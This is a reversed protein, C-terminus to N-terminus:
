RLLALVHESQRNAQTLMSMGAQQLIQSKAYQVMEDAMDTDRDRSESAQTNEANIANGSIAYELRNQVAGYRSRASSLYSLAGDIRELAKSAYKHASITISNIGMALTGVNLRELEIGQGANAGIQLWNDYVPETQSDIGYFMDMKAPGQINDITHEGMKKYSIKVANGSLSAKLYANNDPDDFATQLAEVFAEATDYRGPLVSYEYTQGDVDITFTNKGNEIFIGNSIDKTGTLYAPILDGETKYFITFLSNGTLGDIKYKGVELNINKNLYFFLSNKDDSGVVGTEFTGVGARISGPPLLPDNLKTLAQDLKKQLMKVLDGSGYNGPDLQLKLPIVKETGNADTYTINMGLDDNAGKQIRSTNNRIDQRGAIYVDGGAQGGKLYSTKEKINRNVTGKMVYEYFTGNMNTISTESGLQKATFRVQGSTVSVDLGYDGLDKLKNQLATQLKKIDYTGEDLTINVDETGQVTKYTFALNNNGSDITFSSPFPQRPPRYTYHSYKGGRATNYSPTTPVVNGGGPKLLSGAPASPTFSSSTEPAVHIETKGDKKVVTATYDPEKSEIWGWTVYSGGGDMYLATSGKNKATIALGSSGSKQVDAIGSLKTQFEKLVDDVTYGKGDKGGDFTITKNTSGVTVTVESKEGPAVWFKNGKNGNLPVDVTLKSPSKFIHNGASGCNSPDLKINVKSPDGKAKTTITIGGYGDESVMVGYKGLQTNLNTVLASRTKITTPLTIPQAKGNITLTLEQQGSPISISAPVNSITISAARPDSNNVSKEFSCGKIVEVVMEDAKVTSSFVLQSGSARVTIRDAPMKIKDNVATQIVSALDDKSYGGDKSPITVDYTETGVKIQLKNNSSDIVTNEKLNGFTCTAYQGGTVTTTGDSTGGDGPVTSITLPTGASAPINSSIYANEGRTQTQRSSGEYCFPKGELQKQLEKALEEPTYAGQLITATRTDGGMNVTLKNNDGTFHIKGDAGVPPTLIAPYQKNWTTRSDEFLTKYGTDTPEAASTSLSIATVTRNDDEPIFYIRGGNPTAKIKGSLGANVLQDNIEQLLADMDTYEIAAVTIEYPNSKGNETVSIRFSNDTDDLTLPFGLVRSGLAYPRTYSGSTYSSSGGTDTYERSVFLTNYASQDPPVSSSPTKFEISSGRGVSKTTLKLGSFYITSNTNESKREATYSTVEIKGRLSSVADLARQLENQMGTQDYVGKNLVVKEYSGAPQGDVRVWLERNADGIEYSGQRTEMVAGGTFVAPKHVVEGYKVNDYFVSTYVQEGAERDDIKFMNGGIGTVIGDEGGIQISNPGYESARVETIGEADLLENLLKIMDQRYYYGPKVKVPKGDKGFSKTTGDFCEVTFKLEDNAGEKIQLPFSPDFYTTGILAGVDSGGYTDFFLYSLGGEVNEINVGDQLAMSCTHGDTYELYLGDAADGLATVVDDM